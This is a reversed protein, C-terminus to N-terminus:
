GHRQEALAEALNLERPSDIDLGGPWPIAWARVGDVYFRRERRLRATEMWWIAGTVVYPEPLDQSRMEFAPPHVRCMKRDASLTVAWWPNGGLVETVSLLPANPDQLFVEYSAIVDVATRLPSSPLLQAVYRFEEGHAALDELASVTVEAVPTHDDALRSDRLRPVHAGASEAVQRIEDSDTSVCVRSFLGSEIAAELTHVLLPRGRLARLNKGPIRKSGARAPVVAVARAATPSPAPPTM